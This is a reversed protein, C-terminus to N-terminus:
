VKTLRALHPAWVEVQFLLVLLLLIFGEAGPCRGVHVATAIGQPHARVHVCLRLHLGGRIMTQLVHPHAAQLRLLAGAEGAAGVRGERESVGFM